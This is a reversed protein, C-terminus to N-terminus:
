RSPKGSSGAPLLFIFSPLTGVLSLSVCVCCFIFVYVLAFAGGANALGHLLGVVDYSEVQSLLFCVSTVALVMLGRFVNRWNYPPLRGLYMWKCLSTVVFLGCVVGTYTHDWYHDKEQAVWVVFFAVYRLLMDLGERENAQMHILWLMGYTVGFINNMEHWQREELVLSMNFGKCANYMVGTALHGFGIFVEFHRRGGLVVKLPLFYALSTVVFIALRVSAKMGGSLDSLEM